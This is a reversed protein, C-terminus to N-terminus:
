CVIDYSKGASFIEYKKMPYVEPGAIFNDAGQSSYFEKTVLDYLGVENDSKRYCSVFDRVIEVGNSIQCEYLDAQSYYLIDGDAEQRAFLKVSYGPNQQIVDYNNAQAYYEKNLYGKRTNKFNNELICPVNPQMLVRYEGPTNTGAYGWYTKNNNSGQQIVYQLGYFIQDESFSTAVKIRAGIRDSDDYYYGTDIYQTGTSRIFEVEQYASPLRLKPLVIKYRKM